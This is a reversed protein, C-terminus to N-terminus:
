NRRYVFTFLSDSVEYSLTLRNGSVFGFYVVQDQTATLLLASDQAEFTGTFVITTDSTVPGLVADIFSERVLSEERFTMNPNLTMRGAVQSLVYAGNFFNLLEFPLARGNITQLTYSGPIQVPEPGTEDDSCAVSLVCLIVALWRRM